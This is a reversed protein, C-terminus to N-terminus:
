PGASEGARATSRCTVAGSRRILTEAIGPFAAPEPVPSEPLLRSPFRRSLYGPSEPLPGADPDAGPDPGKM